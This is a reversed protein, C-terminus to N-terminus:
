DDFADIGHHLLGDRRHARLSKSPIRTLWGDGNADTWSAVFVWEELFVTDPVEHEGTENWPGLLKAHRQLLDHLEDRAAQQEPGLDDETM